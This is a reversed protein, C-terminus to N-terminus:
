GSALMGSHYQQNRSYAQTAKSAQRIQKQRQLVSQKLETLRDVVQQNLKQLHIAKIQDIQEVTDTFAQQILPARQLELDAVKDFDQNDLLQLIEDTLAIAKALKDM